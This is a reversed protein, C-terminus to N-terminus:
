DDEEEENSHEMEKQLQKNERNVEHKNGSRHCKVCNEFNQVGEKRHESDIKSQSHEHCTYCTYSAFGTTPTHCDTCRSPHHNDFRFYKTHDYTSPKWASSSHCDSCQNKSKVARHLEDAPINKVHCDTCLTVKTGLLEHDFNSIKWDNIIHCNDCLLNPITHISTGPKEHCTACNRQVESRLIEHTFKKTATEKSRGHHETHCYFCEINPIATHILSSKSNEKALAIGAVNRKGITNMSHCAICKKTVSGQGLTHCAFCDNKLQLHDEILVGPTVSYYPFFVIAALGVAISGIFTLYTRKM